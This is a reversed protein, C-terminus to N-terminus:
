KGEATKEFYNIFIQITGDQSFVASMDDRGEMEQKLHRELAQEPEAFVFLSETKYGRKIMEPIISDFQKEKDGIIEIVINKRQEIANTIVMDAVVQCYAENKNDRKKENETVRLYIAGFDIFVYGEDFDKKRVTSKGSGTGGSVIIIKPSEAVKGKQLFEDAITALRLYEDGDLQIVKYKEKEM